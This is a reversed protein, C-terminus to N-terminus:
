IIREVSNGNFSVGQESPSIDFITNYISLQYINIPIIKLIGSEVINTGLVTTETNEDRLANISKQSEVVMGNITKQFRKVCLKYICSTGKALHRTEALYDEMCDNIDIGTCAVISNM